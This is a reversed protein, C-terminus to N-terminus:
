TGARRPGFGGLALGRPSLGQRGTPSTRRSLAPLARLAARNAGREHRAAPRPARKTPTSTFGCGSWCDRLADLGEGGLGSGLAEPLFEVKFDPASHRALRAPIEGGRAVIEVVDLERPFLSAVFAALDQPQDTSTM